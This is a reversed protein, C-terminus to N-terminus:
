KRHSTTHGLFVMILPRKLWEKLSGLSGAHLFHFPLWTCLCAGIIGPVQSSSAPPDRTWPWRPYCLCGSELFFVSFFISKNLCSSLAHCFQSPFYTPGTINLDWSVNALYNESATHPLEQPNRPPTSLFCPYMGHFAWEQPEELYSARHGRPHIKTQTKNKGRKSLRLDSHLATERKDKM